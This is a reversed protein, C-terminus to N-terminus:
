SPLITSEELLFSPPQETFEMCACIVLASVLSLRSASSGVRLIVARCRKKKSGEQLKQLVIYVTCVVVFMGLCKVPASITSITDTARSSGPTENEQAGKVYQPVSIVTFSHTLTGCLDM